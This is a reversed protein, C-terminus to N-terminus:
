PKHSDAPPVVVYGLSLKAALAQVKGLEEGLVGELKTRQVALERDLQAQVELMGQTPPGPHSRAAENLWAYRSHLKVGGDDRGALIDYTVEADPNHLEHELATLHDIVEKGATVLEAADAREEIQEHRAELQERVSRLREVLRAIESMRDRLLLQFALEAEQDARAVKLRSDPEVRLPASV